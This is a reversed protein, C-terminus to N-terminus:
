EPWLASRVLLTGSRGPSVAGRAWLRRTRTVRTRLCGYRRRAVEAAERDIKDLCTLVAAISATMDYLDLGHFGAREAPQKGANHRRLFRSM